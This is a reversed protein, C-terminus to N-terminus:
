EGFVVEITHGELDNFMNREFCSAATLVWNDAVLAGGCKFAEDVYIIAQWPWADDRSM